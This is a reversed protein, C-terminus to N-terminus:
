GIRDFRSLDPALYRPAGLGTSRGPLLWLRGTAVDTAVLDPPGNHDFDGVGLIRDYGAFSGTLRVPQGLRGNAGGPLLFLEKTTARRVVLDRYNDGNWYGVPTIRDIAFLASKALARTGRGGAGDSPYVYFAGDPDRALLDPRGDGTLDESVVLDRRNGWDRGIRTRSGLDGAGTGPYLWLNGTSASRAIVDPHSDGTWDGAVQVFDADAMLRGTEITPAFWSTGLSDLLVMTDDGTRALLRTTGTGPDGVATIQKLGSWTAWSGQQPGPRGGSEVAHVGTRGTARLRALLDPVGDGTLDHGVVTLDRQWDSSLAVPSAFRGSGLGRLVLLKKATTVVIDRREDGNVDHVGAVTRVGSASKWVLQRAGWRGGARGPYVWLQKTATDRALLDPWRTGVVNGAGALLDTGRFKTTDVSTVPAALGTPRGPRLQTVGTRRVRTVVDPRGDGTVDGVGTFLDIRRGPIALERAPQFGPGRDGRLAQMSGTSRDRVLLDARGDGELDRAVHAGRV